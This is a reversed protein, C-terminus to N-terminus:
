GHGGGEADPQLRRLWQVALVVEGVVLFGLLLFTGASDLELAQALWVTSIMILSCLIAALLFRDFVMTRYVWFGIGAALAFALFQAVHPSAGQWGSVVAEMGGSAFLIIASLALLRAGFRGKLWTVNRQALEWVVSASANFVGLILQLVQESLFGTQLSFTTFTVNALLLWLLWLFASRGALVWGSILVSWLFFLGWADAGTQYVQGFLALWAGVLCAAAGLAVERIMSPVSEPLALLATLVVVAGVIALRTGSSIATWNAAVGFIIAAVLFAVGVVLLFREGVRLWDTPSPAIDALEEARQWAEANLLGAEAAKHLTRRVESPSRSTTSM